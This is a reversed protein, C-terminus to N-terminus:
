SAQLTRATKFTPVKQTYQSGRARPSAKLAAAAIATQTPNESHLWMEDVPWSHWILVLLMATLQLGLTCTASSLSQWGNRKGAPAETTPCVVWLHVAKLLVLGANM